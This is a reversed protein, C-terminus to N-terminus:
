QKGRANKNGLKIDEPCSARGLQKVITEWRARYTGQGKETTTPKRYKRYQPSASLSLYKIFLESGSQGRCV